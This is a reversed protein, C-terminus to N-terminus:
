LSKVQFTCATIYVSELKIVVCKIVAVVNRLRTVDKRPIFVRHCICENVVVCQYMEYGQLLKGQSTCATVDVRGLKTVVKRSIYACNYICDTVKYCSEKLHVRLSVYM